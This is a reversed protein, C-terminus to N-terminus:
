VIDGLRKYSQMTNEIHGRAVFQYYLQRLTLDYGDAAYEACITEALQIMRMTGDKPTWDTIYAIKPMAVPYVPVCPVGRTRRSRRIPPPQCAMHHTELTTPM